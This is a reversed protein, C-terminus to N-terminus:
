GKLDDVAPLKEAAEQVRNEGFDSIGAEYAERIAEAEFGKTVAILTIDEPRRGGRLCAADIRARVEETRKAITSAPM